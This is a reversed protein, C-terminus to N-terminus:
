LQEIIKAAIAKMGADGPHAAVGAHDVRHDRGQDDKVMTGVPCMYEEKGALDTLDAFGCGSRAAIERKSKEREDSLFFDGVVIVKAAPAHARIWQLLEAFDEPFTSQDSVNEGLQLTILDPPVAFYKELLPLTEARDKAQVEWAAFNFASFVIDGHVTKLYAAVQHVFDKEPESSAMGRRDDWWYSCKGHLTLSNGVALYTFAKKPHLGGSTELQLLRQKMNANQRLLVAILFVAACLLVSLIIVVSM